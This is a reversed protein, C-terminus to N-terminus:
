EQSPLPLNLFEEVMPIIWESRNMLTVHTTGPLIALRSNPLGVLDGAVGGGLLRFMDVIHEPRIIDSDGLILFTPAKIGKISEAPWSYVETDLDKMKEVLKPFDAPNPAVKDYETKWPTGEFVEPTINDMAEMLESYMGAANYSVSAAVLKRVLHPYRMAVQIAVGAGLSYGFIDAQPINLFQLLAAVDDALIEMRLPRDIDATRGQAQFDLAIVQRTRALDSLLPQMANTSMYAGHLLVLPEGTGHIEYYLNLGNIPAYNGTYNHEASM